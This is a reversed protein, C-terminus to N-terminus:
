QGLRNEKLWDCTLEMGQKLGRFRCGLENVAKGNSFAWHRLFTEVWGLTILPYGGFLMAKNEEIRAFLRALNPPVHVRPPKRGSLRSLLSFFNNLTSNEGGLIYKQGIKGRSMAKLHGDTVDDVYVYNGVEEGKGLITPFRGRLYLEIMRTVSNGETMKGPGFVRTPNVIVLPLGKALFKEGEIEALYKTKEYDTLFMKDKRPMEENGIYGNTPGFTLSTSTFVIKEVDNDLAIEAVNRFGEVNARFFVSPDSAWNHAYAALHFVRQCDQMAPRISKKDTVDGCFIEIGKRQLGRLDSQERCLLHVKEERHHLKEVLKRGIFGTGGTVFTPM